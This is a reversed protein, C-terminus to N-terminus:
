RSSVGSSAKQIDKWCVERNGDVKKILKKRTAEMKQVNKRTYVPKRGRTEKVGRRYSLGKLAKRVRTLHPAPIKRRKRQAALLSHVKQPETGLASQQQLSDLESPTPHPAM